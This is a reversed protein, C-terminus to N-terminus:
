RTLYNIHINIGIEKIYDSFSYINIINIVFELSYGINLKNM